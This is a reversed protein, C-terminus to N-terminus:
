AAETISNHLAQLISIRLEGLSQIQTTRPHPLDIAWQGALTGRTGLLAIRDAVILAEDIDHTVFLAAAGTRRVTELLLQQMGARTVEDLAGFPEDLLLARPERALCRALAARQAMGGSLQSPLWTRAHSLGVAALADKVRRKRDARSLQPQRRFTLGFAVNHEVTLWPLLCPDQFAFVVDPRPGEVVNGDIRVSGGTPKTLGAVTRLLSSKGCGSPGLLAVLEGPAVSLDVGHLVSRTAYRLAVDSAVIHAGTM